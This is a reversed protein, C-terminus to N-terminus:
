LPTSSIVSLQEPLETISFQNEAVYNHPFETTKAIKREM